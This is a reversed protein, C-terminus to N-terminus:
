ALGALCARAEEIDLSYLTKYLSSNTTFKNNAHKFAEIEQCIPGYHYSYALPSMQDVKRELILV